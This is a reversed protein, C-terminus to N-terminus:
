RSLTADEAVREMAEQLAMPDADAFRLEPAPESSTEELEAHSEIRARVPVAAPQTDEAM